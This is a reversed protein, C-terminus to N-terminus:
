PRAAGGASEREALVGSRVLAGADDARGAAQVPMSMRSHDEQASAPACVGLLLSAPLLLSLPFLRSRMRMVNIGESLSPSDRMKKTQSPDHLSNFEKALRDFVEPMVM